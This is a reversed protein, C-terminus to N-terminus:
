PTRSSRRRKWRSLGGIAVLAVALLPLAAPLPADTIEGPDGPFEVMGQIIDNACTMAWSLAFDYGILDSGLLSLNQLNDIVFHLLYLGSESTADMGTSSVLLSGTSLSSVGENYEVPQGTRIQNATGGYSQTIESNDGIAYVQGATSSSTQSDLVLAYNWNTGTNLLNDAEFHPGTGAPNYASTLFLDGYKTGLTGPSYNTYIDITLVTSAGSYDVDVVAKKIEFASRTDTPSNSVVDTYTNTSGTPPADAGWYSSGTNAGSAYDFITLAAAFGSSPWLFVPALVCGALLRSFHM